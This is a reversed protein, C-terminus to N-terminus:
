CNEIKLASKLDFYVFEMKKNKAQTLKSFYTHLKSM